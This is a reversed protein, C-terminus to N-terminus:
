GQELKLRKEYSGPFLRVVIDSFKADWGVLIRRRNKEVGKIIASAAEQATTKAANDFISTFHKKAM